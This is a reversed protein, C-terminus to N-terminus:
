VAVGARVADYGTWGSRGMEYQSVQRFPGSHSLHRGHHRLKDRRKALPIAASSRRTRIITNDHGMQSCYLCPHRRLDRCPTTLRLRDLDYEQLQTTHSHPLPDLRPGRLDSARPNLRHHCHCDVERASLHSTLLMHGEEIAEESKCLHPVNSRVTDM